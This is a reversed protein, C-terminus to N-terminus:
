AGTMPTLTYMETETLTAAADTLVAPADTLVAEADILTATSDTFAANQYTFPGYTGTGTGDSPLKAVLFDYNGAGDSETRGSVIINGLSDVAVGYCYDNGTGGLTRQWQITGSSNYKAIIFDYGGAGDSNTYGVTIINDSSDVAVFRAYEAGTGGLTRDWQLTGSSNYKATLIDNGGAGDSATYGTLIINDSSDVAVGLGNDGGTGGLTRDWQLTGSSNYKAILFDDSGAGDSETYGAIIINDSSDVAVAYGYDNGTGGLTRDWQLTGSSDYKAILIDNSGAGDSATYGCVIINDSSDVAVGYGRDTGSGGLLRQWLLTGSSDYKTIALDDAGAGDSQTYGVTIINDSSDTTVGWSVDSVTGGSVNIWYDPM